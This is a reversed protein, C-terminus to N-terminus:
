RTRRPLVDLIRLCARKPDWEITAARTSGSGDLMLSHHDCDIIAFGVPHDWDVRDFASGVDVLTTDGEDYIPGPTRFGSRTASQFERVSLRYFCWGQEAATAYSGCDEEPRVPPDFRMVSDLRVLPEMTFVGSGTERFLGSGSSFGGGGLILTAEHRSGCQACTGLGVLFVVCVTLYVITFIRV